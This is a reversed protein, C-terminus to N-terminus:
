DLWEALWALVQRVSHVTVSSYITDQIVPIAQLAHVKCVIEVQLDTRFITSKNCTFWGVASLM